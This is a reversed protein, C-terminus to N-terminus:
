IFLASVGQGGVSSESSSLDSQASGLSLTVLVAGSWDAASLLRVLLGAARAEVAAAEAAALVSQFVHPRVACRAQMAAKAGAAAALLTVASILGKHRLLM